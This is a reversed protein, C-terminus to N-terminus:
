DEGCEGADCRANQKERWPRTAREYYQGWIALACRMCYYKWDWTRRTAEAGCNYCKEM